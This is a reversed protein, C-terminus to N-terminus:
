ERLSKGLFLFSNFPSDTGKCEENKFRAIHCFCFIIYYPLADNGADIVVPGGAFRLYVLLRAGFVFRELRAFLRFRRKRVPVFGIQLGPVAGRGGGSSLRRDFSREARAEADVGSTAPIRAVHFVPSNIQGCPLLNEADTGIAFPRVVDAFKEGEYVAKGQQLLFAASDGDIRVASVGDAPDLLLLAFRFKFAKGFVFGNEVEDFTGFAPKLGVGVGGGDQFPVGGCPAFDRCIETPLLDRGLLCLFSATDVGAGIKGWTGPFGENGAPYNQPAQPFNKTQRNDSLQEVRTM